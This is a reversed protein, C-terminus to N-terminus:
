PVAATWVTVDAAAFVVDLSLPMVWGEPPCGVGGEVEHVLEEGPKGQVVECHGGEAGLLREGGGAARVACWQEGAEVVAQCACVLGRQAREGCLHHTVAQAAHHCEAACIHAVKRLCRRV